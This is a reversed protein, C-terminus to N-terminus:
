FNKDKSIEKNWFIFLGISLCTLTVVFIRICNMFKDSLIFEYKRGILRKVENTKPISKSTGDVEKANLTWSKYLNIEKSVYINNDNIIADIKIKEPKIGTEVKLLGDKSISVGKKSTEIKYSIKDGNAKVNSDDMEAKYQSISEGAVPIQVQNEGQISFNLNGYQNIKSNYEILKFDSLSFNQEKNEATTQAIGWYLIKSINYIKDQKDQGEKGLSNFPVYISGKFGKPISITGYSPTVMELLDSDEKKILVNKDNSVSLFTGDIQKIIFNIRLEDNSQNEIDFSIMGYSDLNMYMENYINSTYYGKKLNKSNVNVSLIYKNNDKRLDYRVNAGNSTNKINSPDLQTISGEEVAKVTIGTSLILLVIYFFTLTSKILKSFIM